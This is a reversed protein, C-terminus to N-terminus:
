AKLLLYLHFQFQVVLSAWGVGFYIIIFPFRLKWLILRYILELGIKLYSYFRLITSIFWEVSKKGM